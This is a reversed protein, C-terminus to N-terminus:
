SQTTPDPIQWSIVVMPIQITKVFTVWGQLWSVALYGPWIGQWLTSGRFHRFIANRLEYVNGYANKRYLGNGCILNKKKFDRELRFFKIV